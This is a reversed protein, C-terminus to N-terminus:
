QFLWRYLQCYTEDGLWGSSLTGKVQSHPRCPSPFHCYYCLRLKSNRKNYTHVIGHWVVYIFNLEVLWTWLFVSVRKRPFLMNTASSSGIFDVPPLTAYHNSSSGGSRITLPELEAVTMNNVPFLTDTKRHVETSM